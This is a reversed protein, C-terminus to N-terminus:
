SSLFLSFGRALVLWRSIAVDIVVAGRARAAPVGTSVM